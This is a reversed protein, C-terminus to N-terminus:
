YDSPYLITFAQGDEIVWVADGNMTMSFLQDEPALKPMVERRWTVYANWIDQLGYDSYAEKVAATVVLPKGHTIRDWHNPWLKCLVGDHIAEDLTYVSIFPDGDQHTTPM